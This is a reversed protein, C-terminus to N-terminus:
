PEAVVLMEHNGPRLIHRVCVVIVPEVDLTSQDPHGKSYRRRQRRTYNYYNFM